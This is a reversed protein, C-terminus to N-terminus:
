QLRGRPAAAPTTSSLRGSLAVWSAAAGAPPPPSAANDFLRLSCSIFRCRSWFLPSGVGPVCMVRQTQSQLSVKFDQM